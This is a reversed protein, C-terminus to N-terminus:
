VLPYPGPVQCVMLPIHERCLGSGPPRTYYNDIELVAALDPPVRGSDALDCPTCERCTLCGTDALVVPINVTCIYGTLILLDTLLQILSKLLEYKNSWRQVLGKVLQVLGKMYQVLTPGFREFIPM